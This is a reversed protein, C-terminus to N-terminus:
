PQFSSRSKSQYLKEQEELKSQLVTKEVQVKESTEFLHQSSKNLDIQGNVLNNYLKVFEVVKNHQQEVKTITKLDPKGNEDDLKLKLSSIEINSEKEDINQGSIFVYDDDDANQIDIQIEDLSPAPPRVPLTSPKDRHKRKIINM